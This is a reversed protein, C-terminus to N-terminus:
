KNQSTPVMCPLQATRNNLNISVKISKQWSGERCNSVPMTFESAPFDSTCCSVFWETRDGYAEDTQTSM